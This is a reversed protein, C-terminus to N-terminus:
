APMYLDDEFTPVNTGVKDLVVFNRDFNLEHFLNSFLDKVPKSMTTVFIVFKHTQELKKVEHELELELKQVFFHLILHVYDFKLVQSIKFVLLCIKSFHIV